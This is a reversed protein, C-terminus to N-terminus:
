ILMQTSQMWISIMFNHFFDFYPYPNIPHVVISTSISHRRIIDIQCSSRTPISVIRNYSYFSPFMILEDQRTSNMDGVMLMPFILRSRTWKSRSSMILWFSINGMSETEGESVLSKNIAKPTSSNCCGSGGSSWRHHTQTNMMNCVKDCGKHIYSQSSTQPTPSQTGPALWTWLRLSQTKHAAVVWTWQLLM